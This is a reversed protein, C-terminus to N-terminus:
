RQENGDEEVLRLHGDGTVWLLNVSHGRHVQSKRKLFLGFARHAELLNAFIALWSERRTNAREVNALRRKGIPLYRLRQGDGDRDSRDGGSAVGHSGLRRATDEDRPQAM